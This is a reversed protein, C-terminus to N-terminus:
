SNCKQVFSVSNSRMTPWYYGATLVRNALSRGGSHNGREGEHLEGLIYNAEFPTVWKLYPGFFLRRLLQGDLITFHAAKARLRRAKNKNSPLEDHALYQLIHTM